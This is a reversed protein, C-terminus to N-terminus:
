QPELRIPIKQNDHHHHQCLVTEGFAIIASKYKQGWTRSYPTQGDQGLQFRNHTFGVHQSQPSQTAKCALRSKVEGNLPTSIEEEFRKIAQEGDVHIVSNIFGNELIFKKVEGRAYQTVGKHDVMVANSIGTTTEVMTLVTILRTKQSPEGQHKLFTYDVQIIIKSKLDQTKLIGKHYTGRAKSRVCSECWSRFPIHTFNQLEREATSPEQPAAVNIPEFINFSREVDEAHRQDSEDEHTVMDSGCIGNHSESSPSANIQSRSIQLKNSFGDM